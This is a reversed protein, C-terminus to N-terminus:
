IVIDEERPLKIPRIERYFGWARLRDHIQKAIEGFRTIRRPLAPIDGYDVIEISLLIREIEDRMKKVVEPYESAINHKEGPDNELDYLEDVGNSYWIYKYKLSRLAKIRYNFHRIDFDPHKRWILFFQQVSKNYEILAYERVPRNETISPLLSVGQITKWHEEEKVNLIDLITPLIDHTQSLWKIKAGKPVVEPYRIILPVKVLEDYACLHHEVHPEHEGQVDGHDSTIIILTEDA